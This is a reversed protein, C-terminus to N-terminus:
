LFCQLKEVIKIKEDNFFNKIDDVVDPGIGDINILNDYTKSNGEKLSKISAFWNNFNKFHKSLLRSTRQGIQPIGLSYIFKNIDVNKYNIKTKCNYTKKFMEKNIYNISNGLNKEFHHPGIVLFMDIRKELKKIIPELLGYDARSGTYFIIKKKSM